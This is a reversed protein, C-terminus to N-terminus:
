LVMNRWFHVFDYYNLKGDHDLDAEKFVEDIENDNFQDLKEGLTKLIQKFEYCTIYGKDDEDFSRFAEIVEDEDEDRKKEQEEIVLEAISKRKTLIPSKFDVNHVTTKRKITPSNIDIDKDHYVSKRKITPSTPNKFDDNLLTIKRKIVPSSVNDFFDDNYKDNKDKQNLNSKKKEFKPNSPNSKDGNIDREDSDPGEGSITKRKNNGKDDELLKSKKRTNNDNSLNNENIKINENKSNNVDNNNSNDNDNDLKSKRKDVNSTNTNLNTNSVLGSLKRDDQNLNLESIKNKYKNENNYNNEEMVNEKGKKLNNERGEDDSGNKNNNDVDNKNKSNLDLDFSGEDQSEGANMDPVIPKLEIAKACAAYNLTNYTDDSCESSKSVCGIMVTISNGGLSNTLIRTLKSERYPIYNESNKDKIEALAMIVKCLVLMASNINISDKLKTKTMDKNKKTNEAGALDLFNMSFRTKENSSLETREFHIVFLAHSQSSLDKNAKRNKCGHKM